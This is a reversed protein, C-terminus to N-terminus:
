TFGPLRDTLLVLKAIARVSATTAWVSARVRDAPVLSGCPNAMKSYVTSSVSHIRCSRM